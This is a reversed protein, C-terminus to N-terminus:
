SAGQGAYWDRAAPRMMLIVGALMPLLSLLMVPNAVGVLLALLGILVVIAAALAVAARRFRADGRRARGALFALGAAAIAAVIGSGRYVTLYSRVEDDGVTAPIAARAYEYSTSASMLGGAMMIVAGGVFCWFAINVVRPRDPPTSSSATM